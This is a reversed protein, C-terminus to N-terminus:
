EYKNNWPRILMFSLKARINNIYTKIRSNNINTRTDDFLMIPKEAVPIKEAEIYINLLREAMFGFIRKQYPAYHSIDISNEIKSLLPFLWSCYDEFQQKNMIFMNFPRLTQSYYMIKNFSDIYKKEYCELLLKQLTKIDESIHSTCYQVYNSNRFTEHKALIINGEDLETLTKSDLSLNISKFESTKFIQHSNYSKTQHHFDFYRRYHCLGIYDYDTMNKWAWYLATLECYSSNKKSINDGTDDSLIGLDISSTSKGVQIPIYPLETPWIDKKHCCVFIKIKKM